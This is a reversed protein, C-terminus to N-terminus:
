KVTVVPTMSLTMGLTAARFNQWVNQRVNRCANQRVNQRFNQCTPNTFCWPQEPQVEPNVSTGQLRYSHVRTM